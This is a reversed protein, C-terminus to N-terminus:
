INRREDNTLGDYWKEFNSCLVYSHNGCQEFEMYSCCDIYPCTIRGEFERIRKLLEEEDM